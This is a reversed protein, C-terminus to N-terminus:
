MSGRDIRADLELVGQFLRLAHDSEKRYQAYWFDRDRVIELRRAREGWWHVVAVVMGIGLVATM